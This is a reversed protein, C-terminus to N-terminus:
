IPEIQHSPASMVISAPTSPTVRQISAPDGHPTSPALTLETLYDVYDLSELFRLLKSRLVTGGFEPSLTADFAWPSLHRKLDADLISRFTAFPKGPQLAVKFSVKLPEFLPNIAAVQVFPTHFESLFNEADSLTALDTFPMLPNAQNRGRTDPLLVLTVCGPALRVERNTHPLCMARYVGPYRDLILREFDWPTVARKRHRLRESTRTNFSRSSEAPLGRSSGYPQAVEKVGPLSAPAQTISGAPLSADLHTAREPNALLVPVANPHIALLRCVATVDGAIAARLWVFGPELWTNNTSTEPPLLLRIVDSVLFDSTREALIRETPLSKWHNSALVSWTIPQRVSLPNASGELFQFLLSISERGAIGKLGIYLEGSSEIAPFLTVSLSEASVQERIYRHEERQGFPTLHFLRMDRSDFAGADASNPRFVPSRAEYDLTFSALEPTYPPFPVPKPDKPNSQNFAVADAFLEAYRDHLFDKKLRLRLFGESKFARLNSPTFKLPLLLRERFARVPSVGIAKLPQAVKVDSFPMQVKAVSVNRSFQGAFEAYSIGGASIQPTKSEESDLTHVKSPDSEFLFDSTLQQFKGDRLIELDATFYANNVSQGNRDTYGQYYKAFDGPPNSWLLHLKVGKVDKVFAEEANVYFSNGVKPSPGFPMFVKAPDLRGFDNELVLAKMGAVEVDIRISDVECATLAAVIENAADDLLLIKLVPALTDFGGDLVTPDYAVVSGAKSDLAFTLRLELLGQNNRGVSAEIPSGADLWEKEGSLYGGLSASVAEPALSGAVGTLTLTLTITREGEQMLLVPSSVAFGLSTNPLAHGHGFPHWAPDEEPLPEGLGDSSAAEVAYRLRGTGADVALIRRHVLEARNAVVELESAYELGDKTKFRTGSPILVEPATKKLSAVIHAQDPVPGRPALGLVERYYFELHRATVRNLENRADEYMRLFALFLAKQPCTAAQAEAQTLSSLDPLFKSWSESPDLQGGPQWFALGRAFTRALAALDAQTRDELAAFAPDLPAPFRTPQSSSAGAGAFSSNQSSSM